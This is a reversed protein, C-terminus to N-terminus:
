SNSGGAFGPRNVAFGDNPDLFDFEFFMKKKDVDVLLKANISDRTSWLPTTELIEIDARGFAIPDIASIDTGNITVNGSNWVYLTYRLPNALEKDGYRVTLSRFEGRNYGLYSANSSAYCLRKRTQGKKFYILTFFWSLFGGGILGAIALAIALNNADELIRSLM